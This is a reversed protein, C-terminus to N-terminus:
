DAKPAAENIVNLLIRRDKDIRSGAAKAITRLSSATRGGRGILRGRVDSDSAYIEYLCGGDVEESVVLFEAEPGVISAVMEEILEGIQDLEEM